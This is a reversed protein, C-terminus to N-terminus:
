KIAWVVPTRCLRIRDELPRLDVVPPGLCVSQQSTFYPRSGKLGAGMPRLTTNLQTQLGLNVATSYNGSM